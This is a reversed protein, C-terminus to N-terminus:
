CCSTGASVKEADAATGECCVGGEVNDDDLRQPSTGFTDSDSLVTYVEWKEGARSLPSPRNVSSSIPVVHQKAVWSLTQTM